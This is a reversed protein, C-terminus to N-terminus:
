DPPTLPQCPTPACGQLITKPVPLTIATSWFCMKDTIQKQKEHAEGVARKEDGSSFSSRAGEPFNGSPASLLK